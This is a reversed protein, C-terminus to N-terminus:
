ASITTKCYLGIGFLFAKIYNTIITVLVLRGYVKAVHKWQLRALQCLPKEINEQILFACMVKLFVIHGKLMNVVEFTNLQQIRLTFRHIIHAITFLTSLMGVHKRCFFGYTFKYIIEPLGSWERVLNIGYCM